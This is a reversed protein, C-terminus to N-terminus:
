KISGEELLEKQWASLTKPSIEFKLACDPLSLDPHERYYSVVKIKYDKSHKKSGSPRERTEKLAQLMGEYIVSPDTDETRGSVISLLMSQEIPHPPYFTPLLAAELLCKATDMFDLIRCCLANTDPLDSIQWILNSTFWLLYLMDGKEPETKGVLIDALRTRGSYVAGGTSSLTGDKKVSLVHWAKTNDPQVSKSQVRNELMLSDAVAKCKRESLAGNDYLLRIVAGNDAEEEYIDQICDAYEEESPTTETGTVLDHAFAALNRYIRGATQSPVDLRPAQLCMWDMFNSDLSEPRFKWQEVKGYLTDSMDKTWGNDLVTTSSKQITASREIYENQLKLVHLWSAGTLFGFAEILDESHNMRLGEASDFVRLLFWQMEEISFDLIHGLQLAEERTIQTKFKRNRKKNTKNLFASVENASSEDYWARSIIYENVDPDCDAQLDAIDM